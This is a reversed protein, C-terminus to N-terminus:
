TSSSSSVPKSSDTNTTQSRNTTLLFSRADSQGEGCGPLTTGPVDMAVTPQLSLFKLTQAWATLMHM